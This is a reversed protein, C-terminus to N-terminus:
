SQNSFSQKNYISSHVFSTLLLKEAADEFPQSSPRLALLVQHFRSRHVLTMKPSRPRRSTCTSFTSSAPSSNVWCLALSQGNMELRWEWALTQMSLSKARSSLIPTSWHLSGSLSDYSPDERMRRQMWHLPHQALAAWLASTTFRPSQFSCARIASLFTTFTETWLPQM